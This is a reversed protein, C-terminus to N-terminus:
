SNNGKIARRLDRELNRLSRHDSPSSPIVVFAAGNPPRIRGHKGGSKFVWGDSVLYRVRRNIDKDKSYAGMKM